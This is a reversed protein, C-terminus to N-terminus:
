FREVGKNESQMLILLVNQNTQNEGLLAVSKTAQESEIGGAVGPCDSVGQEMDAPGTDVTETTRPSFLTAFPPRFVEPKM